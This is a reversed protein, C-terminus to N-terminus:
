KRRYNNMSLIYGALRDIDKNSIAGEWAPMGKNIIGRKINAVINSSGSGYLWKNDRLSTASATGTLNKGHCSACLNLYMIRTASAAVPAKKVSAANKKVTKSNINSSGNGPRMRLIMDYGAVPKGEPPDKQSTSFYISGNAAITIARIRRYQKTILNNLRTIKENEANFQMISEDKLNALLLKGKLEPFAGKNYFVIESPGISPSFELLPSVMGERTEKHHIVPWGYNKGKEIINIEDGGNPGHESSYMIGTQPQFDIGQPNRHGYSWIQKAATDNNFFPNDPPPSGDDNVRLIKGNLSKLDQSLRPQDADGTTIYLKNKFFKLRCGTHNGNAFIGDVITKPQWLSDNSFTFREVKLYSQDGKKYNSALYVLKNDKFQPHLCVSLLGMKITTDIDKLVYVPKTILRDNRMLRVKGNRENFLLTSDDIFVMSWPVTLDTALTDIVFGEQVIINDNWGEKRIAFAFFISASLLIIPSFRSM